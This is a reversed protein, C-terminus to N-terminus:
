GPMAGPRGSIPTPAALVVEDAHERLEAVTTVGLLQLARRLEDVLLDMVRLVGREGAAALGYLYPRGVMCLDAGRALAVAIDAGHRVGSDFVIAVGDGVAQRLPRVLEITPVTRDLQRGGHNSVHVGDIGAAVARRADDPGLPGKLLLPGKWTTSIEALDDWTFSPDFLSSIEAVTAREGTAREGPARDGTAPDGPARDRTAPDGTARDGTAPDGPVRDGTASLPCLNAFSIAPSRLMSTWYGLHMGIDVVTMPSLRPPITLGNRVDRARRGAVATDVSLELVKYGATAAREVLSRTLDRDRLPYLQFWLEQHGTAALDEIATTGVTSLGYPLGRKASASAVALEGAPHVMRTYGTPALGLPAPLRRGLLTLALDVGAVDRLARPQFRWGALAARNAAVTVEDDAGGDIYDFVARPLRSLAASRFDDSSHCTALVRDTHDYHFPELKILQRVESLKV